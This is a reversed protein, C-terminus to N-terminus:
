MALATITLVATQQTVTSTTSPADFNFYLHHVASAAVNHGDENDSTAFNDSAPDGANYGVCTEPTGDVTIDDQTDGAGKTKDFDGALAQSAKFLCSLRYQEAGPVGVVSTWAPATTIDLQLKEAVNGDNTVDIAGSTINDTSGAPVVGFDKSAPSVAVSLNQITVTLTVNESSAGLVTSWTGLLLVVGVLGPALVRM